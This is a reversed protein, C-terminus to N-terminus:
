NKRQCEKGGFAKCIMQSLTNTVRNIRAQIWDEGASEAALVRFEHMACRLRNLMLINRGQRAQAHFPGIEFCDSLAGSFNDGTIGTCPTCTLSDPIDEGKLTSKIGALAPQLELIERALCIDSKLLDCGTELFLNELSGARAVLKPYRAEPAPFDVATDTESPRGGGEVLVIRKDLVFQRAGPTLRTGAEVVFEAFADQRYMARLDNETIFKM